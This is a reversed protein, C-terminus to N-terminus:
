EVVEDPLLGWVESRRIWGGLGRVEVNCWTSECATVEAVVGPELLAVPSSWGTAESRLTREEGIVVVTRTGTLLSQHVWGVTGDFDEIKRWHGFEAVIKVPMGERLLVWDIPYQEGPGTRMNVEDARLSVFRPIPLGTEAATTTALLLGAVLACLGVFRRRPLVMRALSELDTVSNVM